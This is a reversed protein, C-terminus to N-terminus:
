GARVSMTIWALSCVAGASRGAISQFSTVSKGTKVQSAAISFSCQYASRQFITTKWLTRFDPQRTSAARSLVASRRTFSIATNQMRLQRTNQIVIILREAGSPAAPRARVLASIASRSRSTGPLICARVPM